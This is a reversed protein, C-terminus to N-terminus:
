YPFGRAEGRRRVTDYEAHGQAFAVLRLLEVLGELGVAPKKRRLFQKVTFIELMFASRPIRLLPTPLSWGTM